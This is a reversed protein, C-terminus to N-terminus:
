PADNISILMLLKYSYDTTQVSCFCEYAYYLVCHRNIISIIYLFLSLIIILLLLSDDGAPCCTRTGGFLSMTALHETKTRCLVIYYRPM